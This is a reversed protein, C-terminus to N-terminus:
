GLNTLLNELMDNCATIYRSAANYANQYKIMNTLEESSSVGMVAQRSDDLQKTAVEQAAVISNYVSGTTAVEGVMAAYYDHYNYKKTLNPNLSSFEKSFADAIADAMQQNTQKDDTIFGDGLLTPTKMLESNIKLNAISYLSDIDAHSTSDADEKVYEYKGSVPKHKDVAPSQM